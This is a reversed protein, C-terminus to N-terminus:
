RMLTILKIEDDCYSFMSHNMLDHRRITLTLYKKKITMMWIKFEYPSLVGNNSSVTIM